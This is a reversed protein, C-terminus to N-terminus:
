QCESCKGYFKIKHDEIKFNYDKELNEEFGELAKDNFEIIKGCERCILHHHHRGKLSIEYRKYNSDFDLQHTINIQCMLELTRYVTALGIDPNINKVEDYLEEASFHRDPNEIMVELINRRQSTLKYNNKRFIDTLKQLFEKNTLEEM